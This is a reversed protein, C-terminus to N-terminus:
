ARRRGDYQGFPWAPRRAGRHYRQRELGRANADRAGRYRVRFQMGREAGERAWPADDLPPLACAMRIIPPSQFRVGSGTSSRSPRRGVGSRTRSVSNLQSPWRSSPWRQRSRNAPLPASPKSAAERPAARTNITSRLARAALRACILFAQRRTRDFDRFGVAQAEGRTERRSREVHNEKIRREAVIQEVLRERQGQRQQAGFTKQVHFGTSRELEIPVLPEGAPFDHPLAFRASDVKMQQLAFILFLARELVLLPRTGDRTRDTGFADRPRKSTGM